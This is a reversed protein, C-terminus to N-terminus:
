ILAPLIALLRTVLRRKWPALKFKIFGEMVVQGALTCTITSSQGSALLAVAFATAAGGGLLTKLLEHGQELEEVAIGRSHFVAAAMILIAANVFFAVSLAGVTDITNFKIAERLSKVGAEVRRSQVVSSHLYLNHPMVTAGLIGLSIALAEGGPMTPKLGKLMEPVNPQAMWLQYGFCIFISFVMVGVIAEIKRFGFKMFALLLLVDFGTILVGLWLPMGFLLNL